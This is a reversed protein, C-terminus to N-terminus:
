LSVRPVLFVSSPRVSALELKCDIVQVATHEFSSSATPYLELLDRSKM